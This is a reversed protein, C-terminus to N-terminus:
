PSMSCDDNFKKHISDNYKLPIYYNNGPRHLGVSEVPIASVILAVVACIPLFSNMTNRNGNLRLVLTFLINTIREFGTNYFGHIIPITSEM